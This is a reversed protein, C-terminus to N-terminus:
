VTTRARCRYQAPLWAFWSTLWVIVLEDNYVVCWNSSKGAGKKEFTVISATAASQM